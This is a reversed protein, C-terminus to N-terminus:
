WWVWYLGMIVATFAVFAGSIIFIRQQMHGRDKLHMWVVAQITAQIIALIILFGWVFTQDLQDKYGVTMFALITLVISLAFAIIHNKPGEHATNRKVQQSAHNNEM